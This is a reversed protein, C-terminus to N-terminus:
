FNLLPTSVHPAGPYHLTLPTRAFQDDRMGAEMNWLIASLSHEATQGPANRSLRIERMATVIRLLLLFPVLFMLVKVTIWFLTHADDEQQVESENVTQDLGSELPLLILTASSNSQLYADDLGKAIHRNQGGLATAAAASANPSNSPVFAQRLLLLSLFLLVASLCWAASSHAGSHGVDEEADESGQSVSLQVLGHPVLAVGRMMAASGIPAAKIPPDMYVGKYPQRCIECTKNGKENIWTQICAPHAWQLSGSCSCPAVLYGSSADELCMRCAPPCAEPCYSPASCPLTGQKVICDDRLPVEANGPAGAPSQPRSPTVLEAIDVVTKADDAM